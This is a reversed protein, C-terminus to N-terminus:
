ILQQACRYHSLFPVPHQEVGRARPNPRWPLVPHPPVRLYRNADTRFEEPGHVGRGGRRRSHIRQLPPNGAAGERPVEEVHVHVDVAPLRTTRSARGCSGTPSPHNSSGARSAGPCYWRASASFVRGRERVRATAPRTFGRHVRGALLCSRLVQRSESDTVTRGLRPITRSARSTPARLRGTEPWRPREGAGGARVM